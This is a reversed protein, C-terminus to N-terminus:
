ATSKFDHKCQHQSCNTCCHFRELVFQCRNLEQLCFSLSHFHIIAITELDMVASAGGSDVQYEPMQMHHKHYALLMLKEMVNIVAGGM